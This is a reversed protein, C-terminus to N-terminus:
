RSGKKPDRQPTPPKGTGPVAGPQRAGDPSVPVELLSERVTVWVRCSKSSPNHGESLVADKWELFKEILFNEKEDLSKLHVPIYNPTLILIGEKDVTMSFQKSRVTM